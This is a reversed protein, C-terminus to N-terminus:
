INLYCFTQPAKFNTLFEKPLLYPKFLKLRIIKLAFAVDRGLYYNIFEKESIGAHKKCRAWVIELPGCVYGSYQFYGVIKQVPSTVYIFINRVKRRFATKRFEYKKTSNIILKAFKPKVSIIIDRSSRGPHYFDKQYEM